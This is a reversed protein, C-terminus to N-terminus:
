GARRFGLRAVGSSMKSFMTRLAGFDDASGGDVFRSAVVMDVDGEQARGILKTIVEPPHQLDADMVCLWSGRAVAF